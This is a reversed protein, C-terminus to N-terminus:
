RSEQDPPSASRPSVGIRKLLTIVEPDSRMAHFAPRVALWALDSSRMELAARLSDLAEASRGLGAYVQAIVGPSVYRTRALSQLEDLIANARPRDGAVALSYGLGALTEPSRNSLEVAREAHAFAQTFDATEALAQGLFFHAPGFKDDLAITKRFVDAADGFRREFFSVLGGSTAIPLSVPDSAIARDITRRAEDFRGLPVLCNLAYWQFATGYDPALLTGKLFHREADSWAWEHVSEVLALSVWAEALDPELELARTAQAKAVPMVDRPPLLGYIALMALADALGAHAKAYRPDAAIAETFCEAAMEISEGTRRNWHYRGKLYATYAATVGTPSPILPSAPLVAEAPQLLSVVSRAIEEQVAFIDALQRDFTKTWLLFGDAVKTLRTTVRLREDATRVSGELVGEVNLAEGAKRVDTGRDRFQFAATRSAIRLGPIGSLGTIIEEAMGECLYELDRARSMDVFPLVAISSVVMSSSPHAAATAGSERLREVDAFLESASAHRGVPDRALCRRLLRRVIEPVSSNADFAPRREDLTAAIVDILNRGEFAREGTVMEYLVAGFAFVDARGDVSLGRAQEPSMYGGTGVVVGVMTALTTETAALDSLAAVRAVGFDLVKAQGGRQIFVNEPKFDRHIIGKEHAAMLASALQSALTLAVPIPLAGGSLRERLTEGELLEMVAYPVDDVHGVDYIAIINPHSLAAVARTETEFRELAERGADPRSLVKIAVERQLRSDFARYVEGVAGSGLLSRVRYPGISDGPEFRM